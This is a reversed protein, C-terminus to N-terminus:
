HLKWKLSLDYQNPLFTSNGSTYILFFSFAFEFNQKKASGYPISLALSPALGQNHLYHIGGKFFEGSSVAYILLHALRESQEQTYRYKAECFFNFSKSSAIKKSLYFEWFRKITFVYNILQLESQNIQNSAIGIQFDKYKVRMGLGLDISQDQGGQFNGSSVYSYFIGGAYAALGLKWHNFVPLELGYALQIRNRQFYKGEHESQFRLSFLQSEKRIASINAHFARLESYPGLFSKYHLNVENKNSTNYLAPNGVMPDQQFDLFYAPLSYSFQSFGQISFAM